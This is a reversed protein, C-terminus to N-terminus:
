KVGARRAFNVFILVFHILLGAFVAISSIYPLLRGPNTVVAFTSRETGNQEQSFSAQFFTYGAYRLPNNMYVRVSRTGAPEILDVTSEYSSAMDTGPHLMRKFETLKVAFPLPYHKQRLQCYLTKGNENLILPQSELGYLQVARDKHNAQKLTFLLAPTNKEVEKELPRSEILAIGSPNIAVTKGGTATANFAASNPYFADVQVTLGYSQYELSRGPQFDENGWAVVHSTDGKAEWIALEWDHYSTSFQAYEGEALTVQSEVAMMQTIFGGILLALIGSHSVWLGMKQWRIPMVLFMTLSLQISLVWLVLSASPVPVYGGLFVIGYGFFQRQAEYLGHETQFLTGFFVLLFLLILAILTIAPHLLMRTVPHRAGKQRWSLTPSNM